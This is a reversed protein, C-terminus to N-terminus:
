RVLTKRKRLGAAILLMGSGLLVFAAPEPVASGTFTGSYTNVIIGGGNTFSQIVDPTLRTSVGGIVQTTVQTTFGGSFPTSGSSDRALLNVGLSVDTYAGRNTLVFPSVFSVAGVTVLPSCSVGVATVGACNNLAGQPSGGPAVSTLDFAPFTMLAGTGPPTPLTIPVYFRIFNTIPGSTIDIDQMQGYPNTISTITGGNYTINTPSGTAFDGIGAPGPSPNSTPFFDIRTNSVNVGGTPVIGVSLTGVPAASAATAFLAATIAWAPITSRYKM